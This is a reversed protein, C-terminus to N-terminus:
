GPSVARATSGCAASGATYSRCAVAVHSVSGATTDSSPEACDVRRRLWARASGHSRQRFGVSRADARGRAACATSCCSPRARCRSCFFPAKALGQGSQALSSLWRYSFGEELSKESALHALQGVYWEVRQADTPATLATGVHMDATVGTKALTTMATKVDYDELAALMDGAAQLLTQVRDPTAAPKVYATAVGAVRTEDVDTSGAGGAVPSASAIPAAAAVQSAPTTDPTRAVTAATKPLSVPKM